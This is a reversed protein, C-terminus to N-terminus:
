TLCVALGAKANAQTIIKGGLSVIILFSFSM